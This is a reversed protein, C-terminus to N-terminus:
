NAVKVMAPRIVTEGVKYGKQLVQVVVNEGAEEDEVHMVAEHLTPDFAQGEADIEALGAKQMAESFQKLIMSIGKAYEEPSQGDGAAEARDINDLVSLFAKLTQARVYEAAALREKETRRKFNDFEAATRLLMEKHRDLEEEMAKLDASLAELEETKKDKGKKKEAKPAKKEASSKAQEKAPQGEAEPATQKDMEAM